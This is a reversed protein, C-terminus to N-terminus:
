FQFERKRSAYYIALFNPDITTEFKKRRYERMSERDDMRKLEKLIHEPIKEKNYKNYKM